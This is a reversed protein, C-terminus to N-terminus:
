STQLYTPNRPVVVPFTASLVLLVPLCLAVAPVSHNEMLVYSAPFWPLTPPVSHFDEEKQTPPLYPSCVTWSYSRRWSSIVTPPLARGERGSQFCYDTRHLQPFSPLLHCSYLRCACFALDAIPLSVTSGLRASSRWPIGAPPNKEELVQSSSYSSTPYLFPLLTM